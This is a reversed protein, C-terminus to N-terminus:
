GFQGGINRLLALLPTQSYLFGLTDQLSGLNNPPDVLLTDSAVIHQWNLPNIDVQEGKLAWAQQMVQLFEHAVIGYGLTSPHIGDLGFLGGRYKLMPDTQGPDIWPYRSDVLPQGEVVRAQTSPNAALAQVLGLPFKYSPSGQRRRYALQDLVTCIDVLHWGRDQATQHLMQNYEDITADIQRIEDRKLHPHHQPSFDRDWIWFHTYFEFYGAADQGQGAAAGPTIGRSVPPITVHPVNGIFVHKAEIKALEDIARDLAIKFHEPRWLTSSRHHALNDLETGDSWTLQLNVVSALCHNAGLWVILNDIGHDRKAIQEAVGIQTLHQYQPNFSPNLTRRVSRYQAFEPVQNFRDERPLPIQTRCIEESLTYCDVWQFGWNALNHHLPGTSSPHIGEGREWYDETRNMFSKVTQVAPLFELWNIRSGYRNSLTKLLTELNLPLGSEGSFDPSKFEAKLSQALMAPFALHTKSISGSQFGQTLSDGIAVLKASM